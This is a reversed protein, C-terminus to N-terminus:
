ETVHLHKLSITFPVTHHQVFISDPMSNKDKYKQTISIVKKKRGYNEIQPIEHSGSLLYYKVIGKRKLKKEIVFPTNAPLGQINAAAIAPKKVFIGKMLIMGLDKALSIKVAKKDMSEMITNWQYTNEYFTIDFFTVGMENIFVTRISSDEQMKFILIGSLHKGIVDISAKYKTSVINPVQLSVPQACAKQHAFLCFVIILGISSQILFRM